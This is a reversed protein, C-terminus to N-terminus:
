RGCQTPRSGGTLARIAVRYVAAIGSLVAFFGALMLFHFVYRFATSDPHFTAAAIPHLCLFLWTMLRPMILWLTVVLALFTTAERLQDASIKIRSDVQPRGVPNKIVARDNICPM